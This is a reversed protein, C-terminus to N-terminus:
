VRIVKEGKQEPNDWQNFFHPSQRKDKPIRMYAVEAKVNCQPYVGHKVELNGHQNLLEILMNIYENLKM